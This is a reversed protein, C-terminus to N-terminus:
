LATTMSTVLTAFTKVTQQSSEVIRRAAHRVSLKLGHFFAIMVLSPFIAVATMITAIPYRLMQLEFAGLSLAQFREDRLLEFTTESAEPYDVEFLKKRIVAIDDYRAADKERDPFGLVLALGGFFAVFPLALQGLSGKGEQFKEAVVRQELRGYRPDAELDAKLRRQRDWRPRSAITAGLKILPWGILISFMFFVLPPM